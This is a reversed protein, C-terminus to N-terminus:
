LLGPILAKVRRRYEPYAEPFAALMLREEQDMKLVLFLGVIIFGALCRWEGIALTTGLCAILIGGYIPHRAFRYPGKMILEHGEKIRASGSWNAGLALRAWVACGCGAVTLALGLMQISSTEIIFHRSLWGRRFYDSGVLFLGAVLACRQLARSAGTQSWKTKKTFPLSILWVTALAAWSCQIWLHIKSTPM